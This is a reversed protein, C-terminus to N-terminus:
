GNTVVGEGAISVEIHLSGDPSGSPTESINMITARPEYVEVLRWADQVAQSKVMEMPRDIIRPNMGKVREYPNEGVFIKLLNSVCTGIRGNGSAKM